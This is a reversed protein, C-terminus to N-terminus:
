EQWRKEFPRMVKTAGAAAFETSIRDPEFIAAGTLCGDACSL